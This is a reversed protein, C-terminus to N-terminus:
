ATTTFLPQAAPVLSSTALTSPRAGVLKSCNARSWTAAHADVHAVRLRRKEQPAPEANRLHAEAHEARRRAGLRAPDHPLRERAAVAVDVRRADVAVLAVDGLRDALRPDIAVLDEDRGLDPVVVLAVVLRSARALLGERPHAEIM